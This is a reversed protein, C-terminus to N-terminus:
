EAPLPFPLLQNAGSPFQLNIVTEPVEGPYIADVIPITTSVKTVTSMFPVVVQVDASIELYIKHRVQNIGAQEFTDTITTNVYGVPALTIPIHPGLNALFYSSLAQGFPIYFVEETLFNLEEQARLTTEAMLRNVEMSNTQAMVIRGEQNKQLIILDQYLIQRDFKKAVARNIAQTAIVNSRVAAVSLVTPLLNSDFFLLLRSLGFVFLALLFFYRAERSLTLRHRRWLVFGGEVAYACCVGFTLIPM